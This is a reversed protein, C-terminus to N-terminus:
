TATRTTHEQDLRLLVHVYSTLTHIWMWSSIRFKLPEYHVDRNYVSRYNLPNEHSLVQVHTHM